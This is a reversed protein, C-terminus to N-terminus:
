SLTTFPTTLLHSSPKLFQYSLGKKQRAPRNKILPNLCYLTNDDQTHLNPTLYSEHTLHIYSLTFIQRPRTISYALCRFDQRVQVASVVSVIYIYM